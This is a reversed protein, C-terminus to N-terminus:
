DGEYEPPLELLEQLRGYAFSDALPKLAAGLDPDLNMIRDIASDIRQVDLLILADHFDKRLELPLSALRESTITEGASAAMTPKTLVETGEEYTYRVGLQEQMTHFIERAQFPKHVIGDCGAALVTKRQEKFASATLAVVTVQDGGPLSRVKATAEYGDMVPMRMDMWIFHPQWQQFLAVADEGNEAERIEFGVDLLLSRLLLRNERNDEVVLIRWATQGPELGKVAPSVAQIHAAEAAEALAVPLEVRFLSGKGLESEASIEGGLLEAFSRSIALGLGTGRPGSPTQQEQVFPEFIRELQQPDIGPGSDQVEFQLTVMSPDDAIPRTRARLSVGGDSTFKLGNSLLNILIQRLKGVDTKIFQALAPDPELQFRLGAIEARLQFMQGIEELMRPLDFAEPELDVRGSEIKSLDLVDNIMGLLHEGSRNIIAVKETQACTCDRDRGLMESFGLIANLPTRLEHSMNALFVSKARNAAEAKEKALDSQRKAQELQANADALEHTRETVQMELERERRIGSKRQRVFAGAILGVTLLAALGRFWWTQWWPPLVIVKISRGEENWVGDNNSAKVRFVYNGPDLNTYTAFRRGATTFRWDEDFGEMKYAYQNKERVSFDLAAFKLSFVSQDHALVIEEAVHIAQQLPGDPSGIVVPKDFLEFGTLVVRPPIPNDKLQEPYFASIGEPGGLYIRGDPSKAIARPNIENSPLGDAADFGRFTETRPDFRSLGDSTGVWLLGQNDQVIGSVSNDALGDAKTYSRVFQESTPDFMWLGGSGGAWILGDKDQYVTELFNLTPNGPRDPAPLFRTFPDASAEASTDMRILGMRDAAFWFVEGNADRIIQRLWDTWVRAMDKAKVEHHSFAKGDFYDLGSGAVSVWVGGHLDPCTWTVPGKAVSEPDDPDHRYRTFTDGDFYDLGRMTGIWLGGQPDESINSVRHSGISNSDRPNHAYRTFNRGDFRNLGAAGVWVAGASDVFLAETYDGGLSNPDAPDRRYTAFKRPEVVSRNVGDSGGVWLSGSHDQVISLSAGTGPSSTNFPGHHFVRLTETARDFISLGSGTALWFRGSRDEYLMRISNCWPSGLEAQDHLYRIFTGTERDFRNLGMTTAFWLDDAQDQFISDVDNSSLTRPNERDSQYRCVIRESTRDFLALGEGIVGLWLLGTTRDESISSIPRGWLSNPDNPDLEYTFFKGTERNFRSLGASGGVWLVGDSDEYIAKLNVHSLFFAPDDPAPVFRDFRDAARDYRNLGGRITGAWLTDQSDELLCYVFNNSLSHEDELDNKYVKFEYGDYRNLGGAQTGLWIFGQHDQLVARVSANSLGDETSLRTFELNPLEDDSQAHATPSPRFLILLALTVTAVKKLVALPKM